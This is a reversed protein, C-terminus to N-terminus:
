KEVEAARVKKPRGGKRGNRRAADSKAPSKTAGAASQHITSACEIILRQLRKLDRLYTTDSQRLHLQAATLARM